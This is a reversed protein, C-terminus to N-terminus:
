SGEFEKLLLNYVRIEGLPEDILEINKIGLIHMQSKM